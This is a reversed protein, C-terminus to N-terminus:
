QMHQGMAKDENELLWRVATQALMADDLVFHGTPQATICCDVPTELLLM